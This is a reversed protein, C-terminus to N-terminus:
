LETPAMGCNLGVGILPAHSISNWLAELTQGSLTRGSADFISSSAIVPVRKGGEDFYKAIAFLQAKLMLTDISTEPLLIDVGGEVLGRVQEEFVEVMRSFTLERLAPNNVDLPI